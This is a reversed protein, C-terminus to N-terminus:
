WRTGREGWPLSVPWMLDHSPEHRNYAGHGKPKTNVSLTNAQEPSYIAMSIGKQGYADLWVKLNSRQVRDLRYWVRAGPALTQWTDTASLASSPSDGRPLNAAVAVVGPTPTVTPSPAIWLRPACVISVGTSEETIPDCAFVSSVTLGMAALALLAAWQVIAKVRM